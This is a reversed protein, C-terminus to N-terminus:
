ANSRDEAYMDFRQGGTMTLVAEILAATANLSLVDEHVFDYPDSGRRRWIGRKLQGTRPGVPCDDKQAALWAIEALEGVDAWSTVPRALIVAAQAEVRRSEPKIITDVIEQESRFQPLSHRYKAWTQRRLNAFVRAHSRFKVLENSVPMAVPAVAVSETQGPNVLALAQTGVLPLVLGGTLYGSLRLLSRRSINEM